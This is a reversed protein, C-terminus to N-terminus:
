MYMMIMSYAVIWLMTIIPVGIFFKPKKTKHHFIRMGCLAGIGGGLVALMILTHEPIRWKHHKAKNKDIGYIVFTLVNVIVLYIIIITSHNLIFEKM